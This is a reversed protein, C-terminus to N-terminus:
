RQCIVQTGALFDHLARKDRRLGAMIFGVGIIIASFFKGFTERLFARGWGINAGTDVNIVKLKCLMKGPTAGKHAYFYGYYVFMIALGALRTIAEIALGSYKGGVLVLVVGLVLGVPFLLINIIINDVFTAVLRIWFGGPVFNQAVAGQQLMAGRNFGGAGPANYNFRMNGPEQNEM